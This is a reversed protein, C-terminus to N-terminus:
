WDPELGNSALLTEGSGDRAARYIAWSGGSDRYYVVYNGDGSWAPWRNPPSNVLRAQSSGDGNMVFIDFAGGDRNSAFAIRGDMGWDPEVNSGSSTLQQEGGGDSARISYIQISGGSDRQFAIRQGDPSYAPHQDSVFNSTLRTPSAGSAQM